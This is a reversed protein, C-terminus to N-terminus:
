REHVSEAESGPVPDFLIARIATALFPILEAASMAALYGDALIYRNFTVGILLGGLLDARAELDPLNLGGLFAEVPESRMARLLERAVGVDGASRILAVFPDNPGEAEIQEVYRRALRQPLEAATGTFRDTDQRNELLAAVFLQEKTEFHRVVLGHTINARRAIERITGRAYGYEGFVARAAALIAARHAEPDRV